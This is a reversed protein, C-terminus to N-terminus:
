QFFTLVESKLKQMSHDKRNFVFVLGINTGLAIFFENADICTLILDCQM